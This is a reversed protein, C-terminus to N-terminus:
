LLVRLPCDSLPDPRCEGWSEERRWGTQEDEFIVLQADPRARLMLTQTHETHTYVCIPYGGDELRYPASVYSVRYQGDNLWQSPIMSWDQEVICQNHNCDVIEPCYVLDSAAASLSIFLFASITKKM